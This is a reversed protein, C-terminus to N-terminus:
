SFIIFFITSIFIWSLTFYLIYFLIRKLIDTLVNVWVPYDDVINEKQGVPLYPKVQTIVIAGVMSLLLILSTLILWMPYVTYITNGITTIHPSEALAGDWVQSSAFFLHDGFFIKIYYNMDNILSTEKSIIDKTNYNNSFLPNKEIYNSPLIKFLTINFLICIILALPISNSTDTSLESVRVNILMLIFLFLITVAGVYVLLYSLGIFSIGLAMLYLAITIFLGILFLISIIPNKSVIVLIAFLVSIVSLIDLLYYKFGDTIVEFFLYLNYM